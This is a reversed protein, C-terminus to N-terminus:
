SRPQRKIKYFDLMHPVPWQGVYPKYILNRYIRNLFIRAMSSIRSYQVIKPVFTKSKETLIKERQKSLVDACVFNYLELDLENNKMLQKKYKILDIQQFHKTKRQSAINKIEYSIDLKDPWVLLRLGELFEEYKEVIGVLSMKTSILKKAKEVNEEGAIAKTMINHRDTRELWADFDAPYKLIDVGFQYDSIYRKIPDRLLTFYKVDKVVSELNSSLQIVHGAISTVRPNLRLLHRMDEPGFLSSNKDRLIVEFHNILYNRRLINNLTTGGCKEIHVFAIIGHKLVNEGKM